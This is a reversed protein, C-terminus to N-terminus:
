SSHNKSRKKFYTILEFIFLCFSWFMVSCNTTNARSQVDFIIMLNYRVNQTFQLDRILHLRCPLDERECSVCSVQLRSFLTM